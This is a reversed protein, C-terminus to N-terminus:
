KQDSIGMDQLRFIAEQRDMGSVADALEGLVQMTGKAQGSADKLSIRLDKFREAGSGAADKLGEGVRQALAQLSAQAGESSGGLAEVSRGLADVDETAVGLTESVSRISEAAAAYDSVTSLVKSV